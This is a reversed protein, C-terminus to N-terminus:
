NEVSVPTGPGIRTVMWALTASDVRVCGHSAATGPTGGINDLGHLAIQGPGGDFVRYVSSRASLAFAFPAGIATRDLRLVEEVFFEGLPTPTASKGVVVAVVRVLNGFHEITM